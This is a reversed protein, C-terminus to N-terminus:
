SDVQSKGILVEDASDLFHSVCPVVLSDLIMCHHGDRHIKLGYQPTLSKEIELLVGSLHFSGVCLGCYRM